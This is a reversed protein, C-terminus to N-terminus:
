RTNADTPTLKSSDVATKFQSVFRVIYDQSVGSLLMIESAFVLQGDSVTYAKVGIKTRNWNNLWNADVTVQKGFNAFVFVSKCDSRDALCSEPTAGAWVNSGWLPLTVVSTAGSKTIESHIPEGNISIRSFVQALKQLTISTILEPVTKSDSQPLVPQGAAIPTFALLVTVVFARFISAM